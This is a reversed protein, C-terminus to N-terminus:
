EKVYWDEHPSFQWCALCSTYRWQHACGPCKGRTEFTNWCTDCGGYFYEPADSDSCYWRSGATPQWRCLPCRIKEFEGSNEVAEIRERFKKEFESDKRFAM